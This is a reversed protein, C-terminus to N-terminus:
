LGPGGSPDLPRHLFARKGHGYDAVAHGKGRLVYKYSVLGELGVPGRAHLKQTSIGVEAGLGYRYGDAFRTSANHFVGASDVRRLFEAAASPDETVIADTHHSGHRNIFEIAEELSDVVRVALILDLYEAGWDSDSAARARPLVQRARPDARLEVGAKELAEGVAPLVRELADRHVLLCEAANCVAPYQTKSDVVVKVATETRAGADLYVACVGDAHGLVPIRTSEQISRVLENSGRPIILDIWRDLALLDRVEERTSILQVADAPVEARELAERIASILAANSRAAERGGKLIAANGSKIALSAIQVAADPRSEFIVGLVGIPCTVRYLELGEDLLTASQVKGLPDPLRILDDLGSLMAEYKDGQLDLRKALPASMAGRAVLLRAEDQDARNQTLIEERRAALARRAESLARDRAAGGLTALVHAAAKARRALDEINELPSKAGPDAL